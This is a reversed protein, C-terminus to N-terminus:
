EAASTAELGEVAGYVCGEKVVGSATGSTGTDGIGAPAYSGEATDEYVAAESSPMSAEGTRMPMDIATRIKCM